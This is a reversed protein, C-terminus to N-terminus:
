VRRRLMTAASVLVILGAISGVFPTEVQESPGEAGSWDARDADGQGDGGGPPSGAADRSEAIDETAHGVEAPQPDHQEPLDVVLSTRETVFGHELALETVERELTENAGYADLRAELARIRQYAVLDSLYSPAEEEISDSVNWARTEHLGRAGVSAELSTLNPDFTGVYLLESGAFLVPAGVRWSEVSADGYSVSVDTLVPSTLATLFSRLDLEAHAGAEVRHALGNADEALGHVLGWDADEGFALSFVHAQAVNAELAKQRLRQDDEIGQTPRGDTLFVLVPLRESRNTESSFPAFGAEIANEINTPGTARAHDIAQFADDTLNADVQEFGQWPAETDGSFFSVHLRDSENLVDVLRRTAQKLQDIKEGQMSGSTDLVLSIDVPVRADTDQARFRHAFYGVGDQITTALAGGDETAALEYRVHLKSDEDQGRPAVNRTIEMTEARTEVDAEPSAQVDRLGATHQLNVEFTAGEDVGRHTGPAHLALEYVGGDATLYQEYTLVAEVTETGEVNIDYAYVSDDTQQSVLGASRQESKAQEYQQRAQDREEIAAEFTEGDRTLTLGTVYAEEPLEVRFPFEPDPGENVIEVGVRVTAYNDVVTADVHHTVHWIDDQRSNEPHEALATGLPGGVLLVLAITM